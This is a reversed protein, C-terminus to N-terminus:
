SPAGVMVPWRLLSTITALRHAYTHERRVAIRGAARRGALVEGRELAAAIVPGPDEHRPLTVGFRPLTLMAGRKAPMIVPTGLAAADFAV